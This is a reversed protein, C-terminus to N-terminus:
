ARVEPKIEECEGGDIMAGKFSARIEAHALDIAADETPAAFVATTSADGIREGYPRRYNTTVRFLREGPRVEVLIEHGEHGCDGCTCNDYEGAAEWATGNWRLAGDRTVNDSGCRECVMRTDPIASDSSTPAMSMLEPEDTLPRTQPATSGDVQPAPARDTETLIVQSEKWMTGTADLYVPEGDLTMCEACDHNIEYGQDGDLYHKGTEDIWWSGGIIKSTAPLMDMAAVIPSGTPAFAYLGPKDNQAM